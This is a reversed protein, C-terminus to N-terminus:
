QMPGVCPSEPQLWPEFGAQALVGMSAYTVGWPAIRDAPARQILLMGAVKITKAYAVAAAESPFVPAADIDPAPSCKSWVPGDLFDGLFLGHLIHLIVYGEM